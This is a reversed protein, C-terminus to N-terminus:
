TVPLGADALKEARFAQVEAEILKRKQADEAAKVREYNSVEQRTPPLGHWGHEAVEGLATIRVSRYPVDGARWRDLAASKDLADIRCLEITGDHEVPLVKQIADETVTELAEEGDARAAFLPKPQPRYKPFSAQLSREMEAYNDECLLRVLEGPTARFNSADSLLVSPRTGHRDGVIYDGGRIFLPPVGTASIVKTGNTPDPFDVVRLKAGDGQLRFGAAELIKSLAQPAEYTVSDLWHNVLAKQGAVVDIYGTPQPEEAEAAQEETRM